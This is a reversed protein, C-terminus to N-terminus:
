ARRSSRSFTACRASSGRATLIRVCVCPCARARACLWVSGCVQWARVGARGCLRARVCVRVCVCVCARVRVCECARACVCARMCVRACARVRVQWMGNLHQVCEEATAAEKIAEAKPAFTEFGFSLARLECHALPPLPQPPVYEVVPPPEPVAPIKKGAAKSPKTVPEAVRADPRAQVSLSRSNAM